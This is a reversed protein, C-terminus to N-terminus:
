WDAWGVGILASRIRAPLHELSFRNRAHVYNQEVVDADPERLWSVAPAVDHVPLVHLGDVLEHLAPYTGVALMRRAAMSEIVPNGFGEWTSPFMVLDAAAYADVPRPARGL